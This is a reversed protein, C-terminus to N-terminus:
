PIRKSLENFFNLWMALRVPEPGKEPTGFVLFRKGDPAIDLHPVGPTQVILKDGWLRPRGPAFGDGELAYDVVMIWGGPAEYFLQRGSNSWFVNGGGGASIQWQGAAGHPFPRVYIERKGSDESAYAMWRGDPSFKPTLENAATGLFLEPKGPKPHDPDTLDLPLTWIDNGAGQGLTYYALRGDPAFSGPVMQHNSELLRIPDGAGDSRVWSIACCPTVSIFALHRGDPAWVPVTAEGLNLRTSTDRELDLVYVNTENLLAVKRGDPSVRPNTYVGPKVNLFQMKGASDAWAPQWAVSPGHGELYVLAGADAAKGSFSFQGGGSYPNPSLDELLRVPQGATELSAPDFRIGYLDGDHVYLVHGTPVYRAFYGTVPLIKVRRTKLSLAEIRGNNSGINNATATFMAFQDRWVQPWRHSSEGAALKTLPQPDGGAEPIRSLITLSNLAAVIYGDEGWSAGRSGSAPCLTVPAGGKVSIKKLQGGAFFGIWQSDPSFFPDFGDETGTLTTAEDQDLLRTALRAKGDAGRLPFVLRRGDPSIVATLSAGKLADPGPDVSLRVLSAKTARTARWAAWFGALTTIALLGAAVKWLRMSRPAARPASEDPELLDWADGIDRLRRSPDKELCRQVLRRAKAPVLTFDPQTKMVAAVIEATSEGQFAPKGVLMEYLVCGFAWIDTQKSVTKGGAQEPSMYAATGLFMGPRTMSVTEAASDVSDGPAADIRALGFDLVKVSGSATVMINAPKLDRHIIGKEHAAELASAVQRAYDLAIDPPLPRALPAGDVLEMVLAHEEFGYIQAIHPHNIAALARAERHFRALREPDSAFADPLVKIAVQRNLTTDRARYVEGMGGAGIPAAIEYPGLRTGPALRM